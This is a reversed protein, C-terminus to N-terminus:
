ARRRGHGSPMVSSRTGPLGVQVQEHVDGLAGALEGQAAEGLVQLIQQVRRDVDDTQRPLMAERNVSAVMM